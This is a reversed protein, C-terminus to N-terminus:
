REVTDPRRMPLFAVSRTLVVGKAAIPGTFTKEFQRRIRDATRQDIPMDSTLVGVPQMLVPGNPAGCGECAGPRGFRRCYACQYVHERSAGQGPPAFQPKVTVPDPTIRGM